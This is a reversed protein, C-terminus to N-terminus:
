RWRDGDHRRMRYELRYPQRARFSRKDLNQWKGLDDPHIDIERGGRLEDKMSRGTFELWQRNFWTCRRDAGSVWILVPASDALERFHRESEEDPLKFGFYSDGEIGVPRDTM